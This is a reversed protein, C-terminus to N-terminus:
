YATNHIQIATNISCMDSIFTLEVIQSILRNHTRIQDYYAHIRPCDLDQPNPPPKTTM